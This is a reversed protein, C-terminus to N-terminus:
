LYLKFQLADMADKYSVMNNKDSCQPFVLIVNKREFLEILRSCKIGSEDKDVSKLIAGIPLKDWAEVAAPDRQM